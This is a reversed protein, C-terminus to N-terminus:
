LASTFIQKAMLNLEPFIISIIRDDGRFTNVQYEDDVLNYISVTPQKPNGIYKTGGLGLYDVIWYEPIKIEEYEGQKKYYDDRWNTSVVEVVLPISTGCEVTSYKTWLEESTLAPKNLILIDPSYTSDSTASRILATKPIFYPLKLRTFEVVLQTNLFGTVEEHEGSPQSMEVIAGNHLEYRKGSNEPIWSLFEETTITPKFLAQTM